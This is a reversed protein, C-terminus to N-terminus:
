ERGRKWPPLATLLNKEPEPLTLVIGASFTYLMRYKQNLNMLRDTYRTSGLQRFAIADWMDGQRTTYTKSM